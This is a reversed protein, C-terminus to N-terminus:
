LSKIIKHKTSEPKFNGFPLYAQSPHTSIVFYKMFPDLYPSLLYPSIFSRISCGLYM